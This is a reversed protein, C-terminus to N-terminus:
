AAARAVKIIYTKPAKGTETVVITITTNTGAAGLAIASSAVGTAVTNGNVTIVGAAATPTVTISSVGTLVTAVYDYVDGAAAPTLVASESLAFFPTTLGASTGISLTPKGSPKITATFGIGGKLAAGGFKHGVVSGTFSYEGTSGPFVIAATKQAGSEFDTALALQGNTDSPKYYGEIKVDSATKWGPMNTTYGDSADDHTTTDESEATVELGDVNFIEGVLNGDWKLKTGKALIM